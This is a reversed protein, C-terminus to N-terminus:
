ESIAKKIKSFMKKALLPKDELGVIKAFEEEYGLEVARRALSGSIQDIMIESGDASSKLTSDIEKKKEAKDTLVSSEDRHLKIAVHKIPQSSDTKFNDDLIRMYSDIRDSGAAIAIPEFGNRRAELLATFANTATLFKVGNVQGSSSMFLIREEVTLPNVQKNERTKEGDIIVVVPNSELGLKPNDKIFKKVQNIVRYHGKTPPNFRGIVVAARKSGMPPNDEFLANIELQQDIDM